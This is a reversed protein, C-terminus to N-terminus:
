WLLVVAAALKDEDEDAVWEEESVVAATQVGQTSKINESISQSIIDITINHPQTRYLSIPKTM